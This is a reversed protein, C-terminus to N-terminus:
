WVLSGDWLHQWIGYNAAINAQHSKLSLHYTHVSNSDVNTTYTIGALLHHPKSKYHLSSILLINTIYICKQTIYMEKNHPLNNNHSVLEKHLNKFVIVVMDRRCKLFLMVFSVICVIIERGSWLCHNVIESKIVIIILNILAFIKLDVPPFDTLFFCLTREIYQM